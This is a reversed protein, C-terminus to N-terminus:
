NSITEQILNDNADYEAIIFRKAKEKSTPNNNEDFFHTIYYTGGNPTEMVVKESTKM